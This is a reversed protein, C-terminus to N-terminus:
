GFLASLGEIVRKDNCRLLLKIGDEMGAKYGRHDACQEALRLRVSALDQKTMDHLNSEFVATQRTEALEKRLERITDGQEWSQKRLRNYPHNEGKPASM